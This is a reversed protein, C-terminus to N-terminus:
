INNGDKLRELEKTITDAPIAEVQTKYGQLLTTYTNRNSLIRELLEIQQNTHWQKLFSRAERRDIPAYKDDITPTIRVLFSELEDNVADSM